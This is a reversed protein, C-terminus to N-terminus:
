RRCRFGEAGPATSHHPIRTRRPRTPCAPTIAAVPSQRMRSIWLTQLVLQGAGAPGPREAPGYRIDQYGSGGAVSMRSGQYGAQRCGRVSSHFGGAKMVQPWARPRATERGRTV